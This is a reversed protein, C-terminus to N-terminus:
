ASLSVSSRASSPLSSSSSACRNKGPVVLTNHIQAVTKMKPRVGSAIVQAAPASQMHQERERRRQEQANRRQIENRQTTSAATQRAAAVGGRNLRLTASHEHTSGRVVRRDSHMNSATIVSDDADMPDRYRRRRTRSELITQQMQQHQQLM